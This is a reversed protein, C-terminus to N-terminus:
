YLANAITLVPLSSFRVLVACVIVTQERPRISPAPPMGLSRYNTGAAATWHMGSVAGALVAACLSRKWWSEKWTDRLKFFVSLAIFSALVAIAGAGAVYRGSYNISYNSIGLQGVYHMGCVATGTLLASFGIFYWNGRDVVGLLYFAVLLVVIPLFFSAATCGGSYLIQTGAENESLIEIARNGIFHMSWIGVSGMCICSSVLLYWNYLGRRSTRRHLLELTTICGVLSVLYSLVIFGANYRVAAYSTDVAM